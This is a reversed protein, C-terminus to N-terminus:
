IIRLFSFFIYIDSVISRIMSSSFGEGEVSWRRFVLSIHNAPSVSFGRMKTAIESLGLLPRTFVNSGYTPIRTRCDNCVGSIHRNIRELVQGPAKPPPHDVTVKPLKAFHKM